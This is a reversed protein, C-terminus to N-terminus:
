LSPDVVTIGETKVKEFQAEKEDIITIAKKLGEENFKVVTTAAIGESTFGDGSIELSMYINFGLSGILGLSFAAVLIRWDRYPTIDMKFPDTGKSSAIKKFGLKWDKKSM